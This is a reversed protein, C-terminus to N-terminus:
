RVKEKCFSFTLLSFRDSAIADEILNNLKPIRIYGINEKVSIGMAINAGSLL